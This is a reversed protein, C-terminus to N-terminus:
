QWLAKGKLKYLAAFKVKKTRSLDTLMVQEGQLKIKAGLYREKNKLPYPFYINNTDDVVLRIALLMESEDTILSRYESPVSISVQLLDDSNANSVKCVSGMDAKIPTRIKLGKPYFFAHVEVQDPHNFYRNFGMTARFHAATHTKVGMTNHYPDWGRGSTKTGVPTFAIKRCVIIDFLSAQADEPNMLFEHFDDDTLMKRHMLIRKTYAMPSMAIPKPFGKRYTDSLLFNKFYAELDEDTLLSAVTLLGLGVAATIWGVPGTLAIGLLSSTAGAATSIGFAVGAGIYALGADLDGEDMSKRGDYFCWGATVVGSAVGLYKTKQTIIAGLNKLETKRSNSLIAKTLNNVADLLKVSAGISNVIEEGTRGDRCVKLIANNFSYLELALFLGNFAKGRILKAIGYHSMLKADNSQDKMVALGVENTPKSFKMKIKRKSFGRGQSEQLIRIVDEQPGAYAAKKVFNVDLKVGLEELTLQIRGGKIQFFTQGRVTKKKLKDVIFLQKEEISKFLKGDIETYDAIHSARYKFQSRYVKALKVSLNNANGFTHEINFPMGLLAFLPDAGRHKPSKSEVAQNKVEEPCTDITMDYVWKVWEDHDVFEKQLLMHRDYKYPHFSLPAILDHAMQSGELFREDHNDLYDDLFQRVYKSQLLTGLDDRYSLLTTRVNEREKMGLIGELKEYDLGYGIFGDNRKTIMMGGKGSITVTRSRPDHAHRDNLNPGSKGGDYKLIAAPDNYVLQYCTLALSVLEGYEKGPTPPELKGRTLRSFADSVSEGSQIADVVAMFHLTHHSVAEAMDLACGIPDHLTIFMDELLENNRDKRKDEARETAAMNAITAYYVNYNLSKPPFVAKVEYFPMVGSQSPTEGSRLFGTCNILKMRKSRLVKDGVMKNVYEVSWQVPSFCVWWKSDKEVTYHTFKRGSAKREDKYRGHNDKNKRWYVARLEGTALVESEMFDMGPDADNFLYLYGMRLTTNGVYFNDNTPLGKLATVTVEELPVTSYYTDVVEDSRLPIEVKTNDQKMRVVGGNSWTTIEPDKITSSSSDESKFDPVYKAHAHDVRTNDREIKEARANAKKTSKPKGYDVYNADFLGKRLFHLHIGNQHVAFPPREECTVGAGEAVVTYTAVLTDFNKVQNEELIDSQVM